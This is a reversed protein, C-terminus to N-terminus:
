SEECNYNETLTKLESSQTKLEKTLAEVREQAEMAQQAILPM